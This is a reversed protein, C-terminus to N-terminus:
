LGEVIARQPFVLREPSILGRELLVRNAREFDAHMDRVRNLQLLAPELSFLVLTVANEGVVILLWQGNKVEKRAIGAKPRNSMSWLTKLIQIITSGDPPQKGGWLLPKPRNHLFVLYYLPRSEFHDILYRTHGPTAVAKWADNQPDRQILREIISRQESYRGYVANFQARNLKGSAFEGAANEMKRRLLELADVPNTADSASPFPASGPVPTHPLPTQKPPLETPPRTPRIPSRLSGPDDSPPPPPQNNM